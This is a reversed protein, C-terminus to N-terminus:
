EEGLEVNPDQTVDQEGDETRETNNTEEPSPTADQPPSAGEDKNPSATPDGAPVSNDVPEDPQDTQLNTTEEDQPPNQDSM